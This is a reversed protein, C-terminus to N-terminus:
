NSPAAVLDIASVQRVWRAPRKESPIILRLPGEKGDLKQGNRRDAVLVVHDLLEPDLEGLSFVVTYGDVATVRVYYALLAGRLKEGIPAGARKLLDSLRVGSWEASDGHASAHVTVRPMKALDDETIKTAVIGIGGLAVAANAPATVADCWALQTLLVGVCVSMRVAIARNRNLM